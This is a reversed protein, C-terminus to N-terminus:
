KCFRRVSDNHTNIEDVTGRTLVDDKSVTIVRSWSCETGRIANIMGCSTVLPLMLCIGTLELFTMPKRRNNCPENPIQQRSTRRERTSLTPPLDSSASWWLVSGRSIAGSSISSSCQCDTAERHARPLHSPADRVHARPVVQGAHLGQAAPLKRLRRDLNWFRSHALDLVMAM